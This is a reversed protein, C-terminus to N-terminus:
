PNKTIKERIVRMNHNVYNMYEKTTIASSYIPIENYVNGIKWSMYKMKESYISLKKQISFKMISSLYNHLSLSIDDENKYIRYLMKNIRKNQQKNMVSLMDSFTETITEEMKKDYLANRFHMNYRHIKEIRTYSYFGKAEESYPIYEFSLMVYKTYYTTPLHSYRINEKNIYKTNAKFKLNDDINYLENYSIDILENKHNFIYRIKEYDEFVFITNDSFILKNYYLYIMKARDLDSKLNITSIDEM